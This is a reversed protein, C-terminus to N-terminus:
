IRFSIGDLYIGSSLADYIRCEGSSNIDLQTTTQGGAMHIDVVAAPRYGAPLTFIITGNTATGGGIQGELYVRGRDKYFAAPHAPGGRNSWGNQFAPEGGAGILHLAEVRDQVLEVWAGDTYKFLPDDDLDTRVVLDGDTPAPDTPFATSKLVGGGLGAPGRVDGADITGGDEKTLILNDGVVNADVITADIIEQMREATLGTITPM